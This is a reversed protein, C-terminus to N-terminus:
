LLDSSRSCSGCLDLGVCFGDENEPDDLSLIIKGQNLSIPVLDQAYEVWFWGEVRHSCMVSVLGIDLDHIELWYASKM